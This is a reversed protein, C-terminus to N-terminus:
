GAQVAPEFLRGEPGCRCAPPNATRAAETRMYIHGTDPRVPMAPHDCYAYVQDKFQHRCDKCRPARRSPHQVPQEPMVMKSTLWTELIEPAAPRPTQQAPIPLPVAKAADVIWFRRDTGDIKLPQAEGSLFIYHLPQAGVATTDISM